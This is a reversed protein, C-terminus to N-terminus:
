YEKGKGIPELRGDYYGCVGDKKIFTGIADQKIFGVVDGPQVSLRFDSYDKKTCKKGDEEVINDTPMWMEYGDSLRRILSLDGNTQLVEILKDTWTINISDKSQKQPDLARYLPFGDKCRWGFVEEGASPIVLLNVQGEDKVGSGGDIDIIKQAAEVHPNMNKAYPCCLTSPWHGVITWKDFHVNQAIFNDNKMFKHADSLDLEDLNKTPIGGHVFTYYPTDIITPLTRLFELESPYTKKILERAAAIDELTEYPVGLEECYESFTDSGHWGRLREIRSKITEVSTEDDFMAAVWYDVNGMIAHVNPRKCLDMVFRLTKLGESGRELYDGVLFLIDTGCFSVEELLSKLWTGHAHIDSAALVRTGKPIDIYDIRAKM